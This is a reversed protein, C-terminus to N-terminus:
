GIRVGGIPAVMRFRKGVGIPTREASSSPIMRVTGGGAVAAQAGAVTAYPRCVDGEQAGTWDFDAWVEEGSGASEVSGDEATRRPKWQDALDLTLHQGLYPNNVTVVATPGSNMITGNVLHNPTSGADGFADAPDSGYSLSSVLAGYNANERESTRWM